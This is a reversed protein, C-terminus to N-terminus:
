NEFYTKAVTVSLVYRQSTTIDQILTEVNQLNKKEYLTRIGVPMSQLFGMRVLNREGREAGEIWLVLHGKKYEDSGSRPLKSVECQMPTIPGVGFVAIRQGRCYVDYYTAFMERFTAPPLQWGSSALQDELGLVHRRFEDSGYFRTMRVTCRHAYGDKIKWDNEGQYCRDDTSTAYSTLATGADVAALAAEVEETARLRKRTITRGEVDPAPKLNRVVNGVGGSFLLTMCGSLTLTVVAASAGIAIAVKKTAKM